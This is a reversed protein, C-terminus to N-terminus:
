EWLLLSKPATPTHVPLITPSAAPVSSRSGPGTSLARNRAGRRALDLRVSWPALSRLGRLEALGQGARNVFATGRTFDHEATWREADTMRPRFGPCNLDPLIFTGM